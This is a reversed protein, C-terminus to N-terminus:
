PAATEKPKAPGPAAIVTLADDGKSLFVTGGGREGPVINEVRYGGSTEEGRGLLLVGGGPERIM